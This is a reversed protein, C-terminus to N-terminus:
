KRILCHVEGNNYVEKYGDSIAVLVPNYNVKYIIGSGYAFPEKYLSDRMVIVDAVCDNFDGSIINNDITVAKNSRSNCWRVHSQIYSLYFSDSGIKEPNYTEAIVFGELEKETFAYRVIQNESLTKNTLNSPLGILSMFSIVGILIAMIFVIYGSKYMNSFRFLMVALPISMFAEALCWWRHEILSFGVLSPLLGILLVACCLVTWSVNLYNIKDRLMILIGILAFGIYMFMGISNLFLEKLNSNDLSNSVVCKQVVDVGGVAYTLGSAPRFDGSVAVSTTVAIGLFTLNVWLLFLLTLAIPLIASRFMFWIKRILSSQFIFLQPIISLCAIIGILWVSVIVHISFSVLTIFVIPIMFWHMHTKYYLIMLYAVILSFTVGVSNPIAWENFFIVWGAITIMMASLIGIKKNFLEKGILYAFIVNIIVQLSSWFILVTMKYDLGSLNMLKYIYLHMLSYYGGITKINLPPLGYINESIGLAMPLEETTIRQHVWADMGIVCPFMMCETWLHLLGVFCAYTVFLVSYWNSKSSYIVGIFAFFISIGIYIYYELPKIYQQFRALYSFLAMIVFAYALVICIQSVVGSNKDIEHNIRRGCIFYAVVCVLGVITAIVYIFHFEKIILIFGIALLM